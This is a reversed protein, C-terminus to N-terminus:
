PDGKPAQRAKREAHQRVKREGFVRRAELQNHQSCLLRLNEIEGTGDRAIPQIHDIHLALTESCRHGDAGVYTCRGQDRLFVADRIQPSIAPRRPEERPDVIPAGEAQAPERAIQKAERREQRRKPSHRELYDRLVAGFVSSFTVRRLRNSLLACAQNYDRMFDEDALFQIYLKPVTPLPM